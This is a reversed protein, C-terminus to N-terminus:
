KVTNLLFCSCRSIKQLLKNKKLSASSQATELSNLDNFTTVRKQNGKGVWNLLHSATRHTLTHRISTDPETLERGWSGPTFHELTCIQHLLFLRAKAASGMATTSPFCHIWFEWTPQAMTGTLKAEPVRSIAVHSSCKMQEWINAASPGCKLASIEAVCGVEGAEVAWLYIHM